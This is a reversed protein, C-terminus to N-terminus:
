LISGPTELRDGTQWRDTNGLPAARPYGATPIVGAGGGPLALGVTPPGILVSLEADPGALRATPLDGATGYGYLNGADRVGEVDDAAVIM